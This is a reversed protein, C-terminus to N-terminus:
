IKVGYSSQGQWPHSIKLTYNEFSVKPILIQACTFDGEPSHWQVGIFILWWQNFATTHHWWAFCANELGINVSYPGTHVFGERSNLM